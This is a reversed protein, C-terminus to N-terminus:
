DTEARCHSLYSPLQSVIILQKSASVCHMRCAAASCNSLTLSDDCICQHRKSCFVNIYKDDFALEYLPQVRQISGCLFYLRLM